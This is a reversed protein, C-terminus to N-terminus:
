EVFRCNCDGNNGCTCGNPGTVPLNDPWEGADDDDPYDNREDYIEEQECRNSKRYPEGRGPSWQCTCQSFDDSGMHFGFNDGAKFMVAGFAAIRLNEGLVRMARHLPCRDNICWWGKTHYWSCDHAERM